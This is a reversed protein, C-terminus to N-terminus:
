TPYMIKAILGMMALLSTIQISLLWFFKRDFKEEIRNLKKDIKEEFHLFKKDFKEEFNLFKKDIKDEFNLFKKDFKEEVHIFKKDMKDEIHDFKDYIDRRLSTISHDLRDIATATQDMRVELTTIRKEM